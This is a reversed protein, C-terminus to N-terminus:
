DEILRIECRVGPAAALRRDATVLPCGLGEALAVYVADYPSVNHRLGHARMLFPATPYSRCPLRSLAAISAELRSESVRSALWLQRLAAATEVYAHDPVAVRNELLVKRAIGRRHAETAFAEVLVSADVVVM